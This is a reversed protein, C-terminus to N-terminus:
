ERISSAAYWRSRTRADERRVWRPHGLLNPRAIGRLVAMLVFLLHCLSARVLGRRRPWPDTALPGRDSVASHSTAEAGRGSVPQISRRDATAARAQRDAIPRIQLVKPCGFTQGRTGSFRPTGPELGPRAMANSREPRPAEPREPMSLRTWVGLTPRFDAVVLVRAPWPAASDAKLDRFGIVLPRRIERFQLLRTTAFERLRHLALRM